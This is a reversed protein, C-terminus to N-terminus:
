RVLPDSSAVVPKFAPANAMRLLWVLGDIGLENWNKPFDALDLTIDASTFRLVQQSGPISQVDVTPPLAYVEALWERGTPSRFTRPEAGLAEARNMM